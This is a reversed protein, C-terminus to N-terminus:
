VFGEVTFLGSAYCDYWCFNDTTNLNYGTECSDCNVNDGTTRYLDGTFEPCDLRCGEDFSFEADYYYGNSDDCVCVENVEDTIMPYNCDPKCRVGEPYDNGM